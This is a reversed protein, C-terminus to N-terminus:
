RGALCRGLVIAELYFYGSARVLIGIVRLNKRFLHRDILKGIGKSSM